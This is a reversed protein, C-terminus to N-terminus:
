KVMKQSSFSFYLVLGSAMVICIAGISFTINGLSNTYKLLNTTSLIYNWDHMVSEGGLLPLEQRIADSMYISVNMISQGLWFLIVSASFFEKRWVLFYLGFFLPVLIQFFSGACVQIFEGFMFFITHGAEHIVLDVDDFLNWSPLNNSQFVLPLFYLILIFSAIIKGIKM